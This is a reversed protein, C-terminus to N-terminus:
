KGGIAIWDGATVNATFGTTTVSTAQPVIKPASSFARKFTVNQSATATGTEIRVKDGEVFSEQLRIDTASHKTEADAIRQVLNNQISKMNTNYIATTTLANSTFLYKDFVLYTVTYEATTDVANVLQPLEQSGSTYTTFPESVGNKYVGLVNASAKVTTAQKTGTNFTVKERVIVGEGLELQNNGVHFSISGEVTVAEEVTAALQYTFKYNDVGSAQTTPVVTVSGVNDTATLKTWTKTGTGNYPTGFVGNNMKYGYFYAQIEAVTPTYTEGFGTDIDSVNLYLIHNVTDIWIGDSVNTTNFALIKGDYKVATGLNGANVDFGILSFTKYGASDSGYGWALSGGLVMDKKFRNTQMLAGDVETITDAVTGDVNSALTTQLYLYDDNRPEFPTATSGLELQPEYIETTTGAAITTGNSLDSVIVVKGYVSGAPATGSASARTNNASFNSLGIIGLSNNNSDFFEFAIRAGVTIDSKKASLTYQAISVVPIKEADSYGSSSGTSKIKYRYQEITEVNTTQFDMSPSVLNKGYKRIVPNKLHKVNDVYPFKQALKDGTYEADVDIKNYTALDIEILRIGDVYAFQGVTGQLWTEVNVTTAGSLDTPSVKVYATNFKSTDTVYPSYKAASSGGSAFLGLRIGSSADGNKLDALVLYYKSTNILEFVSRYIKSITFGSSITNKFGNSGYVKNATDLVHTGQVDTWKSVDECNGDKGLLNVLTGGKFNFSVPSQQLVNLVSLGHPITSTGISNNTQEVELTTIRQSLIPDGVLQPTFGQWTGKHDRTPSDIETKTYRVNIASENANVGTILNNFEADVDASKIKTGAVFDFQRAITM